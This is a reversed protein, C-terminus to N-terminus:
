ITDMRRKAISLHMQMACRAESPSHAAIADYIFQHEGLTFRKSDTAAFSSQSYQMFLELLSRYMEVLFRNGSGELIIRHFSYDLRALGDYKGAEVCRRFSNMTENLAALGEETINVACLEAAFPEICFRTALLEDVSDKNDLLWTASASHPSPLDGEETVVAFAGRNPILEIYGSASLQRLAERLTSRGVGLKEALGVEGPLKDGRKFDGSLLMERIQGAIEDPIPRRTSSM